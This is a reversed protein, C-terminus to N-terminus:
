CICCCSKTIKNGFVLNVKLYELYIEMTNCWYHHDMCAMNKKLLNEDVSVMKIDKEHLAKDLDDMTFLIAEDIKNDERYMFVILDSEEELLATLM